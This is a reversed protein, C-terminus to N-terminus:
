NKLLLIIKGTPLDVATVSTGIKLDQVSVNNNFGLVTEQHKTHELFIHGAGDLCIDAGGDM